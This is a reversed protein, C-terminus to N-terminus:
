RVGSIRLVATGAGAGYWRLIEIEENLIKDDDYVVFPDGISTQLYLGGGSSLVTVNHVRGGNFLSNLNIATLTTISTDLNVTVSINDKRLEHVINENTQVTQKSSMLLKELLSVTISTLGM